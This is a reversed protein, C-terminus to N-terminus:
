RYNTEKIVRQIERKQEKEKIAARKDGGDKGKALAVEAKVLSDKFYLKTVILTYGKEEVKSKLKRIEQKHLLLRRIRDPEPNYISGHKYPAIHAGMLLVEGNKIVAYSDRLNANGLRLSKVESGKLEVGAEYTEEVFYDHYAKKNSAIIKIM